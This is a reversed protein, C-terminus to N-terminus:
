TPTGGCVRPYVRYPRGGRLLTGPEGACAPISRVRAACSCLPSPNGRVRPSLGPAVPLQTGERGTGGCVRPYVGSAGNLRGSRQPEGACAPISGQPLDDAGDIDDTGGCVRPYVQCWVPTAQRCLPEGACAPISGTRPPEDHFFIPNGRVRPSLGPYPHCLRTQNLTGGCVRPYVRCRTCRQGSPEPEGACAPISRGCHGALRQRVPNGRVRPSLGRVNGCGALKTPTGGCVRPYVEGARIAPFASWPEGACAPISGGLRSGSALGCHNGRVRPSLGPATRSRACFPSTGGCM